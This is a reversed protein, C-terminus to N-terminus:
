FKISYHVYIHLHEWIITHTHKYPASKNSIKTALCKIYRSNVKHTSCLRAHLRLCVNHTFIYKYLYKYTISHPLKRLFRTRNNQLFKQSHETFNEIHWLCIPSHWWSEDVALIIEIICFPLDTLQKMEYTRLFPNQFLFKSNISAVALHENYM